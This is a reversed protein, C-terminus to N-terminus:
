SRRRFLDEITMWSEDDASFRLAFILCLIAAVVFGGVVFLATTFPLGFM